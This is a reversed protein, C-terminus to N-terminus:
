DGKKMVTVFGSTAGFYKANAERVRQAQVEPNALELGQVPTFALSSALGNTAGSQGSATVRRLKKAALHSPPRRLHARLHAQTVCRTHPAPSALRRAPSAVAPATTAAPARM